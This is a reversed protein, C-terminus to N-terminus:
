PRASLLWGHWRSTREDHCIGGRAHSINSDRKAESWPEVTTHMHETFNKYPAAPAFGRRPPPGSNMLTAAKARREALTAAVHDSRASRPTQTSASRGGHSNRTKNEAKGPRRDIEVASRAWTPAPGGSISTRQYRPAPDTREASSSDGVKQDRTLARDLRAVLAPPLRSQLAAPLSSGVPLGRAPGVGVSLNASGSFGGRCVPWPARGTRGM